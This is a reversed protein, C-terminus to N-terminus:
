LIEFVYFFVSLARIVTIFSNETITSCALLLETKTCFETSMKIISFHQTNFFFFLFSVHSM